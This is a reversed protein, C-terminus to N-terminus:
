LSRFGAEVTQNPTANDFDYLAPGSQTRDRIEIKGTNHNYALAYRHNNVKFWLVNALGGSFEKIEISGPDARWIVGGLMALAVTMVNQAHHNARNM